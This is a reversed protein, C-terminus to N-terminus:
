LCKVVSTCPAELKIAPAAGLIEAFQAKITETRFEQPLLSARFKAAPAPKVHEMAKIFGDMSYVVTVNNGALRAIEAIGGSEATAIDPTGCALSELAVNPLGEWRSPMLFCDAAAFQPWPNDTLGPLFIKKELNKSAILNELHTREPGEGLITLKWDYLTKFNSLNEILRDFGKQSHLRGAAVFHVTNKRTPLIDIPDNEHKRIRALDVPNRLLVHNGTKMKLLTSFEDIIAQAPSIVKDALPYLIKYALKLFPALPPYQGIIFSPVIAERVIFRIKPFFPKLLLVGFNMHAMTSVVISPRIERLKTYLAPLSTLVRRSGLSHFPIAPDILSRMPGQESVTVFVPNFRSRDLTNMLTILVREAGGATLAPLIFAVTPKNDQM